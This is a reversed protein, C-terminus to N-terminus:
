SVLARRREYEKLMVWFGDVYAGQADRPVWPLNEWIPDGLRWGASGGDAEEMGFFKLLARYQAEAMDPIHAFLWRQEAPNTMFGSEILVEPGETQVRGYGYYQRLGGTYNDAHRPPHGPIREYEARLLRVLRENTPHMPFGFSTGRAASSASGDAHEFLAADCRVGDPIDGPVPVADFRGDEELLAVVKDRLKRTFEQERITGTGAEFGPERPAIHGAQVLIRKKAM